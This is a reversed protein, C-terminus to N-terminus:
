HRWWDATIFTCYQHHQTVFCPHTIYCIRILCMVLIFPLKITVFVECLIIKSNISIFLCLYTPNQLDLREDIRQWERPEHNLPHGEIQLERIEYHLDSTYGNGWWVMKWLHSLIAYILSSKGWQLLTKSCHINMHTHM